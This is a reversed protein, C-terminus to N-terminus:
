EAVQVAAAAGNALAKNVFWGAFFAAVLAAILLAIALAYAPRESAPRPSAARLKADATTFLVHDEFTAKGDRLIRDFDRMDRTM